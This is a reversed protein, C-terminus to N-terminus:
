PATSVCVMAQKKKYSFLYCEQFHLLVQNYVLWYVLDSLVLELWPPEQSYPAKKSLEQKKKLSKKKKLDANNVM